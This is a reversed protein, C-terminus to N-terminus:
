AVFAVEVLKKVVARLATVPVILLRVPPDIIAVEESKEFPVSVTAAVEVKAVVVMVWPVIVFADVVFRVAVLPTMVLAVLVFRKAVSRLAVVANKVLRVAVFAVVVLKKADTRFATVAVTLVKVAPDIVAVDDKVEYPVKFTVPWVVRALADVVPSVEDPVSLTAPLVVSPFADAVARETM